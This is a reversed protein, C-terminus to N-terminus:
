QVRAAARPAYEADAAIKSSPVNSAFLLTHKCDKQTVYKM